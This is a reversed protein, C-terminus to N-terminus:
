KKALEQLVENQKKDMEATWLKAEKYYRIAGPHYPLVFARAAGELTWTQFAGPNAARLEALNAWTGKVLTYVWEEPTDTRCVWTIPLSVSNVDKDQNRYMGAKLADPSFFTNNKVIHDQAAKSLSLFKMKQTQFIEALTPHPAAGTAIPANGADATGEAFAAVLDPWTSWTKLKIDQETLGYAALMAKASGRIIPAPPLDFWCNRGKLDPYDNIGIGDRVFVAFNVAYGCFMLRIDAKGRDKYRELGRAALYDDETNAQGMHIKKEHLLAMNASSGGTAEASIKHGIAKSVVAAWALGLAHYSSGSVATGLSM